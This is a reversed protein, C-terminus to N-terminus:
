GIRTWPKTAWVFRDDVDMPKVPELDLDGNEDVSFTFTIIVGNGWEFAIRNDEVSYSCGLCDTGQGVEDDYRLTWTGDQLTMTLIWPFTALNDPSKDETRSALADDRTLEWRYIGSLESAAVEDAEGSTVPAPAAGTCGAPIALAPESTTSRKLEEIREIFSETEPDRELEGYVPIFAQRLAALDAEAANAFRAGSACADALIRADRDVLGVSHAAADAAAQRLWARQTEDLGAVHGPNALLIDMQPWLNVNATVYPAASEMLNMRYIHLSKEFGQIGGTALGNDLAPGFVDTPTAGLARIAAAQAESRFAQFTIGQWDAPGLLPKEVAIPKRLGDALVGLGTVALEDLGELMERPIESELVAQELAYSDILMPATLARFSNLGLTDFVRAGTWGLEVDGNSVARVVQEEADAAFDGFEHLMEIRLKGGSLEDVRDVFYAVAPTYGLNSTTDAMRLVVTGGSGGAKTTEDGGCGAPAVAMLALALLAVHARM